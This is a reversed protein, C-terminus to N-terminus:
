KDNLVTRLAMLQENLQQANMKSLLENVASMKNPISTTNNLVSGLKINKNILDVCIKSPKAHYIWYYSIVQLQFRLVTSGNSLAPEEIIPLEPYENRLAQTFVGSSYSLIEGNISKIPTSNFGCSPSRPTFVYGSLFGLELVKNYCYNNLRETVDFSGNDRGVVRIGNEYQVLEVPPRPVSLGADVEPCIPYLTFSNNLLSECKESYRGKGDYRVTDGL